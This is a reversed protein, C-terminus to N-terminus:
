DVQLDSLSRRAAELEPFEGGQTARVLAARAAELEGTARLAVGLHYQVSPNEPNLEASRRLMRVAEEPDGGQQVLVWGLTDLVDPNDPAVEAARRAVEVARADGRENYLWALNNLAIPNGSDALKEYRRLAADEDGRM